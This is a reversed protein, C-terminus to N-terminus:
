ATLKPVRLVQGPTLARPNTLGNATAIYRWLSPDNYEEAALSSLTDGRRVTRTKIVDASHLDLEKFTLEASRFQEFTCALTARVPTGDAQFLTFHQTLNTLVGRFIQLRGWLLKCIPPRHLDKDIRILNVVQETYNTVSTRSPTALPFLGLPTGTVNAILAKGLSPTGREDEYTDFFLDLQLTAPSYSDGKFHLEYGSGPLVSERREWEVKHTLSFERPNFLAVIVGSFNQPSGQEYIITLKELSGGPKGLGLAGPLGTRVVRAVSGLDM